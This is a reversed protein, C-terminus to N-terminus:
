LPLIPRFNLHRAKHSYAHLQPCSKIARAVAQCGSDLYLPGLSSSYTPVARAGTYAFILSLTRFPLHSFVDISLTPFSSGLPPLRLLADRSMSQSSTSPWRCDYYTLTVENTFVNLHIDSMLLVQRSYCRPGNPM